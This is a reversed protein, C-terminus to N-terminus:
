YWRTDKGLVLLPLLTGIVIASAIFLSLLGTSLTSTVVALSVATGNRIIEAMGQLCIIIYYGPVFQVSAAVLPLAAPLQWHQCLVLALVSIVLTGCFVGLPVEGRTSVIIISVFRGAAGCLLCVLIAKGPTNMVLCICLAALAGMCTTIVLMVSFPFQLGAGDIGPSYVLLVTLLGVAMIALVNFFIVLRPIGIHLHNRLIEWGGNILQFGPIIFVCPIILSVLPTATPIVQSLLAASCTAVLTTALIAMYYGYGERFVLIRTLVAIGASIGIILLAWADAHNFFGFVVAFLSLAVFTLLPSGTQPIKLSQLESTVRAPDAGDPLSRLFRSIETIANGNMSIPLPYECMAIRREGGHEMTIVLAEFGLFIHLHGGHLKENLVAISDLIRQGAAGAIFLLRGLELEAALTEGLNDQTPTPLTIELGDITEEGTGDM